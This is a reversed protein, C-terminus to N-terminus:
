VIKRFGRDKKVRTYYTSLLLISKMLFVKFIRTMRGKFLTVTRVFKTVAQILNNNDFSQNVCKIKTKLQLFSMPWNSIVSLKRGKYERYFWQEIVEGHCLNVTNSYQLVFLAM